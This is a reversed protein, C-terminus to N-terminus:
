INHFLFYNGDKCIKKQYQFYFFYHKVDSYCSGCYQTAGTKKIFKQFTINPNSYVIDKIKEKTLNTCFCIKNM